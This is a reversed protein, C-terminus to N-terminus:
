KVPPVGPHPDNQLLHETIRGSGVVALVTATGLLVAHAVPHNNYLNVNAQALQSFKTWM